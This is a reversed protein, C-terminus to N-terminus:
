VTNVMLFYIVPGPSYAFLFQLNKNSLFIIFFFLMLREMSLINAKVSLYLMEMKVPYNRKKIVSFCIRVRM